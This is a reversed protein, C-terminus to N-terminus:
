RGQTPRMEPAELTGQQLGTFLERLFGPALATLPNVSVSADDFPGRITYSAAFAGEGESGRLFQGLIPIQGITWNVGYLPVVTGDLDLSEAELDVEGQFTLGLQSGYMRGRGLVLQDGRLTFPAETQDIWIGEGGLLDGIGTPSALTLLRALIPADLVRFDSAELTGEAVLSPRQRSITADLTLQGGKIRGTQDLARLLNGADTSTLRFRRQDGEPVLSLELDGGDPLRATADAWRWGESDRVLDASVQNLTKRDLKLRDARLGLRLPTPAESDAGNEESLLTTLDLTRANVEIEYGAGGDRRLVVTADSEGLRVRDLQLREIQFPAVQAQLSGEARLTPSALRFDTVQLPGDAPVVMAADLTGPEGAPKHWGLRPVDIAAPALDLALEVEHVGVGETITAEVGVSGDAAFPLDLGLRQLTALDPAGGVRYRRKFAAAGFNERLDVRLPVEEIIAEGVLDAGENDVSLTLQGDSLNVPTGALAGNEIAAQAAVRVESPELDRHLPMGIRLDTEVQGAAAAPAIGIKSAFGLPPQDILALAQAVPGTVEAAIELQTTDRGKIGIGTIVVSGRDVVLDDVRGAEVDFDMRQGTFTARGNAGALPSMADLYRVTLDEFVFEGDLTHEPLPKQGLEGPEFRLTARAKPVRGSTINETVWQRAERGERPPWYRELDRAAVNEAELDARLTPEGNRWAVEGRGTLRAGNSSFGLRDIVLGALDAALMGQVELADVPLPALGLHDLEVTGPQAAIDFRTPSREGEVLSVAGSLKGSLPLRIADLPLDPAFDAFEVPLLSEFGVEIEVRDQGDSHAASVHFSAPQTTQEIEFNLDANIGNASPTISLEANRARLTRGLTRDELGLEGGTVRIEELYRWKGAGEASALVDALLSGLDFRATREPDGGFGISGDERRTLVLSPASAEIRRLAVAGDLLMASTSLGIEVEPLESLLRGDRGSVRVGLALLDLSRDRGLRLRTDDIAVVTSENGLERELYPTLWAVSVPGSLLLWAFFGLAVLAGAVLLALLRALIKSIRIVM